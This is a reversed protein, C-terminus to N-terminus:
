GCVQHSVTQAAVSRIDSDTGHYIRCGAAVNVWQQAVVKDTYKLTIYM